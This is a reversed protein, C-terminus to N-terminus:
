VNKRTRKWTRKVTLHVDMFGRLLVSMARYKTVRLLADHRPATGSVQHARDHEGGPRYTGVSLGAYHWFHM